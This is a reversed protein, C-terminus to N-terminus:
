NEVNRADLSSKVVFREMGNIAFENRIAANMAQIGVPHQHEVHAAEVILRAYDSKQHLIVLHAKEYTLGPTNTLRSRSRM